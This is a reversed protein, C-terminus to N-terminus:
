RCSLAETVSQSGNNSRKNLDVKPEQRDHDLAIDIRRYRPRTDWHHGNWFFEFIFIWLAVGDVGACHKRLVNLSSAKM